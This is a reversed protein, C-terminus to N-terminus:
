ELLVPIQDPLHQGDGDMTLVRGVGIAALTEMGDRLAAGKGRNVDHRLVEAGAQFAVAATADSSGDDVVLVREVHHRAGTVVAAITSACNYAPVLIALPAASSESM